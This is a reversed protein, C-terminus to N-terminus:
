KGVNCCAVSCPWTCHLVMKLTHMRSNSIDVMSPHTPQLKATSSVGWSLTGIKTGTTTGFYINFGDAMSINEYFDADAATLTIWANGNPHTIKAVRIEDKVFIADFVYFYMLLMLFLMLFM